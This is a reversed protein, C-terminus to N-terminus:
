GHPWENAADNFLRAVLRRLRAIRPDNNFKRHWHQRLDFRPAPFPPEVIRINTHERV